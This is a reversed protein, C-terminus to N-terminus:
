WESRLLPCHTYMQDSPLLTLPLLLSSFSQATNLDTTPATLATDVVCNTHARPLFLPVSPLLDSISWSRRPCNTVPSHPSMASFDKCHPM